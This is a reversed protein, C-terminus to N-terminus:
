EFEAKLDQYMGAVVAQTQDALDRVDDEIWGETSIPEGFRIYITGPRARLSKMPLAQHGGYFAVPIIPVGARIALLFAGRKFRAVGDRGSLKGEGGWTISEGAQLYAVVENMLEDTAQRRGRPVLEIGLVRCARRAFPILAYADAAAVRDVLPMVTSPFVFVDAFSTENYCVVCGQGPAPPTGMVKTELRFTRHLPKLSNILIKRGAEKSNARGIRLCMAPTYIVWRAVARVGRWSERVAKM